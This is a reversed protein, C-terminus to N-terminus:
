PCVRICTPFQAFELLPQTYRSPGPHSAYSKWTQSISVASHRPPNALVPPQPEFRCTLRRWAAPESRRRHTRALCTKMIHSNVPLFQSASYQGDIFRPREHVWTARSAYTPENWTLPECM